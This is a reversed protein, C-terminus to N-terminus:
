KSFNRIRRQLDIFRSDDRLPDAEPETEIWLMLPDRIVFAKELEALARNHDGLNVYAISLSCPSVFQVAGTEDLGQLIQRAKETEGAKAYCSALENMARPNGGMLELVRAAYELAEDTRGVHRLVWSYAGIGHAFHPDAEVAQRGFEVAEDFRRAQYVIWLYHAKEFAGLPNIELIRRADAVAEDFRGFYTRIGSRWIYGMVHNPSLEIGREVNEEIKEFDYDRFYTHGLIGYAEGLKDDIALAREAMERTKEYGEIPPMPSFTSLVFYYEALGIYALAYDPDLRIAEEFYTKAKVFEAPIMQYLHYRGRLYAEFAEPTDTARRALKKQEEGTLRPILLRAVKEAVTDELELIDILNEDFKDAWVTANTKIDLLQGTVRIRGAARRITGSLVFDVNLERGAAFADAGDGFRLISNTPRVVLRRVNSLRNIMADALGLSLYKDDTDEDVRAGIVQLPLVAISKQRDSVVKELAEAPAYKEALPNNMRRLLDAFRKDARLDELMPEVGFWLMWPDDEAFSQEFYRFAADADGIAAHAMALFYPKVYGNQALLKIEELIRGAEALKGTKALAFCLQYKVYASHPILDNFKVAYLLAQKYRKMGWLSIAIQSYGQPYNRDLEMIQRGRQFAEEFRHAQYLAFAVMTKARLSFPALKEASLAEGVGEETRGTAILQDAYWEHAHHYNPALRIAERKLNEAEKWLRRSQMVLSLTAHAEGSTQDLEIARRANQEAEALAPKSPILGYINAWIYFDALGVYALTYNSDLAVATQFAELAKPLAEPTFQNWYFRGKLYAEYARSDNTERRALKEKETITLQPVLANTVQESISDELALVDTFQADFSESWRTTRENVNLLQTTVRIQNGYFRINGDVVFEVGLDNGAQFADDHAGFRLISSTPCIVLQRVRSLRTILSDALGVSLFQEDSEAGGRAGIIKLPLVALSPKDHPVAFADKPTAPPRPKLPENRLFLRIDEALELVSQYREEPKKRLTTMVIQEIDGSLARRLEPLDAGRSELVRELTAGEGKALFTERSELSESLKEPSQECVVRAIELPSRNKLRYPRHGSLLEYLIVGLSYIDSAPTIDAGGVQEPSAYEPTMMQMATATPELTEGALEADLLKAIGFDLLKPTGNAKVLINSPKLDRHVVKIRHAADVAECVHLFIELREKVGLKRADCFEYLPEGAVYEMVFYPVGAATTGGDYLQAIFPHSLTALVQREHRFRRLIFETEMGRKILKVAVQREFSGDARAALYVTGMGGRGIEELLQYAGVTEGILPDRDDLTGVFIQAASKEILPRSMLGSAEEDQRILQEIEKRLELDAGCKEDLFRAREIPALEVAELFIEKIKEWNTLSM